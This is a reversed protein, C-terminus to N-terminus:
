KVEANKNEAKVEAKADSKSAKAEKKESSKMDKDSCAKADKGECCHMMSKKATTSKASKEGKEGAVTLSFAVLAVVAAVFLRSKM